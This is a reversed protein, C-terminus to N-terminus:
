QLEFIAPLSDIRDAHHNYLTFATQKLNLDGVQYRIANAIVGKVWLQRVDFQVGAGWFGGFDNKIRFMGLIETSNNPKIDVGLDILAYGGNSKKMTTTDPISDQVTLENNTLVSRAGGVFNIKRQDQAFLSTSFLALIFLLTSNRKAKKLLQTQTSKM